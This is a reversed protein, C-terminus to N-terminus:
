KINEPYPFSYFMGPNNAEQAGKEERGSPPSESSVWIYPNVQKGLAWHTDAGLLNEKFSHAM